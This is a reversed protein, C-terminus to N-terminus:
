NKINRNVEKSINSAIILFCLTEIIVFGTIKRGSHNDNCFCYVIKHKVYILVDLSSGMRNDLSSVLAELSKICGECPSLLCTNITVLIFVFFFDFEDVDVLVM